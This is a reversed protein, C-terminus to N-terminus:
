CQFSAEWTTQFARLMSFFSGLCNSLNKKNYFMSGLCNSLNKENYFMNGLYNSLNKESKFWKAV